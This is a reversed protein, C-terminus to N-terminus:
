AAVAKERRRAVKTAPTPQPSKTPQQDLSPVIFFFFFMLASALAWVTLIATM